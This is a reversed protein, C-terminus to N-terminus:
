GRSSLNLPRLCAETREFRVSTPMGLQDPVRLPGLAARSAQPDLVERLMGVLVARLYPDEEADILLEVTAPAIRTSHLNGIEEARDADDLITLVRLM